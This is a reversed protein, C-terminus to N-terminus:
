GRCGDEDGKNGAAALRAEWWWWSRRRTAMEEAHKGTERSAVSALRWLYAVPSTTGRRIEGEEPDGGDRGRRRYVAFPACPQACGCRPWPPHAHRQQHSLCSLSFRRTKWWAVRQQGCCSLRPRCMASTLRNKPRRGWRYRGESISGRGDLYLNSQKVSTPRKM